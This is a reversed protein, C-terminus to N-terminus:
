EIAEIKIRNRDSLNIVADLEFGGAIRNLSIFSHESIIQYTKSNLLKIYLSRMRM